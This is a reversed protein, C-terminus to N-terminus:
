NQNKLSYLFFIVTWLLNTLTGGFISEWSNYSWLHQMLEMRSIVEAPFCLVAQTTFVPKIGGVM